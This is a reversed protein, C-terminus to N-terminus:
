AVREMENRVLGELRLEARLRAKAASCPLANARMYTYDSWAVVLPHDCDIYSYLALARQTQHKLTAAM